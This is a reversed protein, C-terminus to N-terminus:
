AQGAVAPVHDVAGPEGRFVPHRVGVQQEASVLPGAQRNVENAGQDFAAEGVQVMRFVPLQAEHGIRRVRDFVRAHHLRMPSESRNMSVSVPLTSASM